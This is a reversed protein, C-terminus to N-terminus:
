TGWDGGTTSKFDFDANWTANKLLRKGAQVSFLHDMHAVDTGEAPPDTGRSVQMSFCHDRRWSTQSKPAPFALCLGTRERVKFSSSAKQTLQIKIQKKREGEWGRSRNKLQSPIPTSLSTSLRVPETFSCLLTVACRLACANLFESSKALWLSALPLAWPAWFNLCGRKNAKRSLFAWPEQVM